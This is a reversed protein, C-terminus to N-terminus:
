RGDSAGKGHFKVSDSQGPVFGFGVIPDAGEHRVLVPHEAGIGAPKRCGLARFVLHAPLTVAGDAHYEVQLLKRRPARGVPWPQVDIGLCAGLVGAEDRRLLVACALVTRRM